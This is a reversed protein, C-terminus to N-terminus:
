RRAVALLYKAEDRAGREVMDDETQGFWTELSFGTEPLMSELEDVTWHKHHFPNVKVGDVVLPNAEANPSSVVLRGGPAMLEALDRLYHRPDPMHELTELSVALQFPEEGVNQKWEPSDLDGKLFTVAANTGYHQRAHELADESIDVGFVKGAGADALVASGYGCGCAVDLVRHGPELWECAKQYRALHKPDIDALTEGMQRERSGQGTIKRYLALLPPVRKILRILM